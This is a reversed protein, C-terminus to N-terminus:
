KTIGTWDLHVNKAEAFRALAMQRDEEETWELDKELISTALVIPQVIFYRAADDPEGIFRLAKSMADLLSDAEGMWIKKKTSKGKVICRM